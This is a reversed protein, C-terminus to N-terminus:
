KKSSETPSLTPTSESEQSSIYREECEQQATILINVAEETARFIKFYMEKYDPM